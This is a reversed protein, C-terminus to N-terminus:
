PWMLSSFNLFGHVLILPWLTRWRWYAFAFILGMPLIYVVAQAGQYLHYLVRIFASTGIALPADGLRDLAKIVYGVVFVEEFVPNVVSLLLAVPFSVQSIYETSGDQSGLIEQGGHVLAWISFALAETVQLVLLLAVAGFTTQWNVEFRFDALRWGRIALFQAALAAFVCEVVILGLLSGDDDVYAEGSPPALLDQISVLTFYGFCITIVIVFEAAPPLARVYHQMM